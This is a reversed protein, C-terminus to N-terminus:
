QIFPFFSHGNVMGECHCMPFHKVFKSSEQIEFDFLCTKPRFGRVSNRLGIAKIAAFVRDYLDGCKSGMYVWIRPVYGNGKLCHMGLLQSNPGFLLSAHDFTADGIYCLTQDSVCSEKKIIYKRSM